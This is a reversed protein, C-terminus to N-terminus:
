AELRNTTSENFHSTLGDEQDQLEADYGDRELLDRRIEAQEPQDFLAAGFIPM